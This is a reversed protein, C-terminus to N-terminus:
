LLGASRMMLYGTTVLSDTFSSLEKRKVTGKKLSLKVYFRLPSTCNVPLLFYKIM